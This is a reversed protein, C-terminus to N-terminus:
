RQGAEDGIGPSFERPRVPPNATADACSRTLQGPVPEGHGRNLCQPQGILHGAPRDGRHGPALGRPGPLGPGDRREDARHGNAGSLAWPVHLGVLCPFLPALARRRLVGASVHRRRHGPRCSMPPWRLTQVRTYEWRRMWTPGSVVAAMRAAAEPNAGYQRFYGALEGQEAAPFGSLMEREPSVQPQVLENRNTGLIYKVAGVSLWAPRSRCPSPSARLRPWQASQQQEGFCTQSHRREIFGRGLRDPDPSESAAQECPVARFIYIGILPM